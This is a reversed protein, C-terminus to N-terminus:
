SPTKSCSLIIDSELRFVEEVSHLMRPNNFYMWAFFQSPPVKGTLVMYMMAEIQLEEAWAITLRKPKM